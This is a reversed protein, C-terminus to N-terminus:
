GQVSGHIAQQELVGRDRGIFVAPLHRRFAPTNLTVVALFATSCDSFVRRVRHKRKREQPPRGEMRSRSFAGKSQTVCACSLFSIRCYKAQRFASQRTPEFSLVDRPIAHVECWFFSCEDGVTCLRLTRQMAPAVIHGCEHGNDSECTEPEPALVQDRKAHREESQKSEQKPM